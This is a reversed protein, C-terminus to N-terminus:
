IDMGKSVNELFTDVLSIVDKDNKWIRYYINFENNMLHELQNTKICILTECFQCIYIKPDSLPHYFCRM